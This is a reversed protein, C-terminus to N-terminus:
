TRTWRAQAIGPGMNMVQPGVTGFVGGLTARGSVDFATGAQVLLAIDGHQAQM